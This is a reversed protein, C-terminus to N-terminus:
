KGSFLIQRYSYHTIVWFIIYKYIARMSYKICIFDQSSMLAGPLKMLILYNAKSRSERFITVFFSDNNANKRSLYKM